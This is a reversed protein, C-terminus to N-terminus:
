EKTGWSYYVCIKEHYKHGWSFGCFDLQELNAQVQNYMLRALVSDTLDLFLKSLMEDGAFFERQQISENSVWSVNAVPVLKVNTAQM